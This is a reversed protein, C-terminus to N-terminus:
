LSEMEEEHLLTANIATFLKTIERQNLVLHLRDTTDNTNKIIISYMNNDSNIVIECEHIDIHQQNVILM